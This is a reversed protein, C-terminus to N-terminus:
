LAAVTGPVDDVVLADVGARAYAPADEPKPCWALVELGARHAVEVSHEVPRYRRPRATTGPDTGGSGAGAEAFRFSGTHLGVAQLGLGAAAAVGHWMPFGLWTLLGLPVGPLNEKLSLLVAPDFSTVLLPRRRAEAALVPLLLQGTRRAPADVADELITKVDVDVAVSTPLAEFLDRLRPLGCADAALDVVFDGGATVPDHRLVLEDDATRQVDIEVWSIGARVAALMSDVTNEVVLNGDPSADVPDLVGELLRGGTHPAGATRGAAPVGSVPVSGSGSGRHGIITPRSTFIMLEGMLM